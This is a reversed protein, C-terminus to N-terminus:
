GRGVVAGGSEIASVTRHREYCDPCMVLEMQPLVKLLEDAPLALDLTPAKPPRVRAGQVQVFKWAGPLELQEVSMSQTGVKASLKRCTLEATAPCRDCCVTWKTWIKM